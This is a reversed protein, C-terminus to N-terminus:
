MVLSTVYIREQFNNESHHAADQENWQRIGGAGGVPRDEPGM